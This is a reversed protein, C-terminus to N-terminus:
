INMRQLAVITHVLEVTMSAMKLKCLGALPAHTRHQEPFRLLQGPKYGANSLLACQRESDFDSCAGCAGFGVKILHRGVGQSLREEWWKREKLMEAVM